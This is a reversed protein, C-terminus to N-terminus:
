VGSEADSSGDEESVQEEEADGAETETTLAISTALRTGDEREVYTVDVENDIALDALQDFGELVTEENVTFKTEGVTVFDAGVENVTGNLTQEDATGDDEEDGAGDDTQEGEEQEASEDEDEPAEESTLDELKIVPKFNFGKIGAPSNPNGKVVFSEDVAFDLTISTLTESDVKMGGTLVKIGTETGSPVKLDYTTGDKMVVSADEAVILRIQEYTGEPVEVEGLPATVGNRLELLNFAQTDQSVTM